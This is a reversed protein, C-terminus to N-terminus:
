LPSEPASLNLLRGVTVCSTCSLASGGPLTAGLSQEQLRRRRAPSSVLELSHPFLSLAALWPELSIGRVASFLTNIVLRNGGPSATHRPTSRQTGTEWDQYLRRFRGQQSTPPKTPLEQWGRTAMCVWDNPNLHSQRNRNKPVQCPSTPRSSLWHQKIPLTHAAPCPWHSGLVEQERRSLKYLKLIEQTAGDVIIIGFGSFGPDGWLLFNMKLFMGVPGAPVGYSPVTIKLCTQQGLLWNLLLFTLWNVLRPATSEFPYTSQQFSDWWKGLALFHAHSEFHVKKNKIENKLVLFM